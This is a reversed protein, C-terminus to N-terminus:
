PFAHLGLTTVDVNEWWWRLDDPLRWPRVAEVPGRSAPTSPATVGHAKLADVLEATVEAIDTM